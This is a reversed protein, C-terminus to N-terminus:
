SGARSMPSHHMACVRRVQQATDATTLGKRTVNCNRPGVCLSRALTGATSSVLMVQVSHTMHATSNTVKTVEVPLQGDSRPIVHVVIVGEVHTTARVAAFVSGVACGAAPVLAVAACELVDCVVPPPQVYINTNSAPRAQM